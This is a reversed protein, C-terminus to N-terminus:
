ITHCLISTDSQADTNLRYQIASESSSSGRTTSTTRPCLIDKCRQQWDEFLLGRLAYSQNRAHDQQNRIARFGDQYGRYSHRVNLSAYQYQHYKVAGDEGAEAHHAYFNLITGDTAFTTIAAYGPPDPKGVLSLAQNRAYVLAAGTYASKQRADEIDKEFKMWQGAIHPLTVSRLNDEFLVVGSGGTGAFIRGFERLELGEVFDAQPAPLANNFGVDQPFDTFPENLARGYGPDDYEKLLKTGVEFVMTEENVAATVKNVYRNYVSEPPSPSARSRIMRKRIQTINAPPKSHRPGLVGNIYAQIIFDSSAISATKPGSRFVPDVPPPGTWWMEISVDNARESTMEDLMALNDHTLPAPLQRHDLSNVQRLRASPTTHESKGQCQFPLHQPSTQTAQEVRDATDARTIQTRKSSSADQELTVWELKRKPPQMVVANPNRPGSAIDM